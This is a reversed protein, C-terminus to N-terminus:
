MVKLEIVGFHRKALERARNIRSGGKGIALGKNKVEVRLLVNQGNSSVRVDEVLVPKFLNKLFGELNEAYEVIEVRRGMTRELRSLGAGNKGIIKGSDGAKVVFVVSEPSLLVDFAQSSTLKEFM